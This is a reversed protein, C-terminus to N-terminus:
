QKLLAALDRYTQAYDDESSEDECSHLLYVPELVVIFSSLYCDVKLGRYIVIFPRRSAPSQLLTTVGRYIGKFQSQLLSTHMPSARFQYHSRQNHCSDDLSGWQMM